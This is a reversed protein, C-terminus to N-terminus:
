VLPDVLVSRSAAAQAAARRDIASDGIAGITGATADATPL